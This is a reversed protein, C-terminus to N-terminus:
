LLRWEFKLCRRIEFEFSATFDSICRIYYSIMNYQSVFYYYWSATESSSGAQYPLPVEFHPSYSQSCQSACKAQCALQFERDFESFFIYVLYAFIIVEIKLAKKLFKGKSLKLRSAVNPEWPFM